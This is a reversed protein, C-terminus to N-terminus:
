VLVARGTNGSKKIAMSIDLTKKADDFTILNNKKKGLICSIIHKMEDIYM